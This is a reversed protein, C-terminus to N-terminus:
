YPSLNRFLEVGHKKGMRWIGKYKQYQDNSEDNIILTGFGHRKGQHVYGKYICNDNWTYTAFGKM